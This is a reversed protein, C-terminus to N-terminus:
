QIYFQSPHKLIAECDIKKNGDSILDYVFKINAIPPWRSVIFKSPLDESYISAGITAQKAGGLFYAGNAAGTSVGIVIDFLNQLGCAHLGETFGAGFIGRMGGSCFYLVLKYM